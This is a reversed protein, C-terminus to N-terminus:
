PTDVGDTEPVGACVRYQELADLWEGDLEVELSFRRKKKRALSDGDISCQLQNPTALQQSNRYETADSTHAHARASLLESL